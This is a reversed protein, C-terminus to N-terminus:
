EQSPGGSGEATKRSLLGTILNSVPAKIEPLVELAYLGICVLSVITSPSLAAVVFLSSTKITKTIDDSNM